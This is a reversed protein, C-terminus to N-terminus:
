LKSIGSGQNSLKCITFVNPNDWGEQLAWISFIFRTPSEFSLLRKKDRLIEDVGAKIKEDTNGKDGSFYGKQIQLENNEDYDNQQYKYYDSSQDLHQVIAKYQKSYEDEFINRIKPNKGRY